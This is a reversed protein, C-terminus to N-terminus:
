MNLKKEHRNQCKHRELFIRNIYFELDIPLLQYKRIKKIDTPDITISGNGDRM